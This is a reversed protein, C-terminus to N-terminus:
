DRYGIREITRSTAGCDLAPDLWAIGNLTSDPSPIVGPTEMCREDKKRAPSPRTAAEKDNM